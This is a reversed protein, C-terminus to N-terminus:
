RPMMRIAEIQRKGCRGLVKVSNPDAYLRDGPVLEGTIRIKAGDYPRLDVGQVRQIYASVPRQGMSDPVGLAFCYLAGNVVCGNITRLSPRGALPEGTWVLGLMMPVALCFCLKKM